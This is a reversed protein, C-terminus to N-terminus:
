ANQLVAAYAEYLTWVSQSGIRQWRENWDKGWTDRLPPCLSVRYGARELREALRRMADTGGEDADLALIVSQVQTPLWSAQAATGALAVVDTARFGAALLTLRDFAGEVLILRETLQAPNYGFWGAPNTKIWRKPAHEQELLAKHANEDMGAKWGWLSRGIFGKGSPSSLPFILREEWRHLLGKQESCAFSDLMTTPFYGVGTAVALEMPIKRQELYAQARASHLLGAGMHEQMSLLTALEDHQWTSAVRATHQLVTPAKHRSERHTTSYMSSRATLGQYNTRILQRALTLNWDAVLVTADCAANFCHGWGSAKDISLSRQHDSGHLHCYARVHEGADIPDDLEALLLIEIEKGQQTKITLMDAGGRDGACDTALMRGILGTLLHILHSLDYWSDGAGTGHPPVFEELRLRV